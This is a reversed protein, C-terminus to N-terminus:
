ASKETAPVLWVRGYGPDGDFQTMAKVSARVGKTIIYKRLAHGVKGISETPCRVSQGLKMQDFLSNYKYSPQYRKSPIADSTIALQSLDVFQAPAKKKAFVTSVPKAIPPVYATGFDEISPKTKQPKAPKQM